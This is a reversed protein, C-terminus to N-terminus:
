FWPHMMRLGFVVVLALTVALGTMSFMAIQNLASDDSSAVGNRAILMTPMKGGLNKKTPTKPPPLGVDIGTVPTKRAGTCAPRPSPIAFVHNLVAIKRITAVAFEARGASASVKQEGTM